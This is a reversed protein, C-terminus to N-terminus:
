DRKQSLVQMINEIVQATFGWITHGQYTYFRQGVQARSFPYNKGGEIRDFPFDEPLDPLWRMTHVEPPNQAFFSLPVTFVEAVEKPCPRIAAYTEPTIYGIYPQIKGRYVTLMYDSKGLLLIREKAIGMEEETERLAASRTCEGKECHGGPFCIDGPQHVGEARKNLVFHLEGNQETLLAMVAYYRLPLIPRAKRNQYISQIQEITM